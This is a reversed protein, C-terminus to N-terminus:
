SPYSPLGHICSPCSSPTVIVQLTAHRAQLDLRQQWAATSTPVAQCAAAAGELAGEEDGALLALQPWRLLLTEEALGAYEGRKSMASM